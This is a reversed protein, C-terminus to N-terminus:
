VSGLHDHARELKVYFAERAFHNWCKQEEWAIPAVGEVGWIAYEYVLLALFLRFEALALGQGICNRPGVSFPQM